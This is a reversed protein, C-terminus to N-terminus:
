TIPIKLAPDLYPADPLADYPTTLLGVQITPLGLRIPSEPLYEQSFDLITSVGKETCQVLSPEYIRGISNVTPGTHKNETNLNPCFCDPPCGELHHRCTKNAGHPASIATAQVHRDKAMFRGIQQAFEAAPQFAWALLIALVGLTHSKRSSPLGSM